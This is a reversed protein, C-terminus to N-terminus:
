KEIKKPVFKDWLSIMDDRLKKTKNLDRLKRAIIKTMMETIPIEVLRIKEDNWKIMPGEVIVEFEKNEKDTFSLAERLVRVQKLSTIDGQEPLINALVVREKVTLKM